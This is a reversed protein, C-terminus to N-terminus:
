ASEGWSILKPEMYGYLGEQGSEHGLGSQKIGVFPAETAHAVWENVAVMGFEMGKAIKELTHVDNGWVFAALGYETSNAKDIVEDITDFVSLCYVPGFVENKFAGTKGTEDYLLTPQFFHGKQNISIPSGGTILEAGEAISKTIIEQVNKLQRANIMPGMTTQEELGPGVVMKEIDSKVFSKFSELISRHVYFRQPAVCVQGANRFKAVVSAKAVKEVDVDACVIVPANGGLELSLNKITKASGVILKRGVNTSGTFSIKRCGTHVLLANGIAEADGFIINLAGDPLGNNKLIKGMALATLPTEESPKAVVTCGAALAAAWARAPNYAPFNWATIIGVVGVPHYNLQLKRGPKKSPITRGYSRKIEEAYWTFLDAAVLCEGIAEKIPKGSELVMIDAIEKSKSRIEAAANLLVESRQYVPTAAWGEFAVQAAEIAIAADAETCFPVSAVLENNAPNLVDITKNDIADKWLGGILAKNPINNMM